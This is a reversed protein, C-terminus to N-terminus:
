PKDLIQVEGYIQVIQKDKHKRVLALFSELAQVHDEYYAIRIFNYGNSIAYETKLHDRKKSEIFENKTSRWSTNHKFHQEGDYEILSNHYSIYRDYRLKKVYRLDEFTKEKEFVYLRIIKDISIMKISESREGACEACGNGMYFFAAKKTVPGHKSCMATIDNSYGNYIINDFCLNSDKHIKKLDIKVNNESNMLHLRSCANCGRSNQKQYCYNNYTVTDPKGCNGCLFDIVTEYGILKKVGVFKNKNQISNQSFLYKIKEISTHNVRTPIGRNKFNLISQPFAVGDVVFLCKNQQPPKNRFEEISSCLFGYFVVGPFNILLENIEDFYVHINRLPKKQPPEHLVDSKKIYVHEVGYLDVFINM